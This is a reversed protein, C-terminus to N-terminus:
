PNLFNNNWAKRNRLTKYFGDLRRQFSQRTKENLYYASEDIIKRLDKEKKNYFDLCFKVEEETVHYGMFYPTKVSEIPFGDPPAAYNQGIIGAYDFDYPLATLKTKGPLRLVKINHRNGVSWDCNLILYQFFALKLYEERELADMGTVGSKIELAKTRFTIDDIDEIMLAKSNFKSKGDLENILELDILRTRFSTPSIISYLQYILHEKLCNEYYVNSRECPLVLKLKDNTAFGLVKLNSKKLDIKLPPLSCIKRRTNGRTAIKVEWKRNVEENHIAVLEGKVYDDTLKNKILTKYDFNLVIKLNNDGLDYVYQFATKIMEKSEEALLDTRSGDLGGRYFRGQEFFLLEGTSGFKISSDILIIKNNFNSVIRPMSTHGVVITNMGLAELIYNAKEEDFGKPNAYGRYWLPGNDFYLQSIFGDGEFINNNPYIKKKFVQNITKLDKEKKIVAESFGGHVFVIDNLTVCVNKSRLWSGLVSDKSFLKGYPTRMSGSTFRYKPNIYSVDNHLVMLEHNGLLLHIKGGSKQAEKELHFLFWLIETVKDGRDFVDGVIVLHGDDFIWTEEEDIVKQAKLLKLFIEYQGHLDSLAVFKPVLDFHSLSDKEFHLGNLDVKPLNPRHFHGAYSPDVLSDKLVGNEIWSIKIHDEEVKIYPGDNFTYKTQANLTLVCSLFLYILRLNRSLPM